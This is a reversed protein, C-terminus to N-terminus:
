FTVLFAFVNQLFLLSAFIIDFCKVIQSIQFTAVSFFWTYFFCVCAFYELHAFVFGASCNVIYIWETYSSFCPFFPNPSRVAKVSNDIAYRNFCTLRQVFCSISFDLSDSWVSWCDTDKDVWTYLCFIKFPISWISYLTLVVTICTGNWEPPCFFFSNSFCGFIIAVLQFVSSLNFSCCCYFLQLWFSFFLINTNVDEKRSM